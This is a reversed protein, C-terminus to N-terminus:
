QDRLRYSTSRGGAEEKELIGYDILQTIDRHATDQSCKAIKAWKSTNLKGTFGDILQNILAKQRENINFQSCNLWFRAKATVKQVTSESAELSRNLCGLFWVIWETVDLTGSQTRELVNYYEKREKRIQASMSYFRQECDDARALAMDAIARAIRGNGDEFPHITVFWLHPLAAKLLGDTTNDTNFWDLFRSMEGELREAAPAEFHVRERGMAGSLVQMLGTRDDRWTGRRLPRLRTSEAPFLALHWDFLRQATLSSKFNRTADLMMEVVGEVDSEPKPLGSTDMGLRRAVSSRVQETDLYEGEIESTKEIEIILTELETQQRVEFGLATMQGILHGQRRWVQSLLASYEAQNYRFDAWDSEEHIYQPM